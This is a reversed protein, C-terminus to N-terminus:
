GYCDDYPKRNSTRENKDVRRKRKFIQSYIYHILDIRFIGNLNIKILNKNVYMPIIQYKPKRIVMGMISSIIGVLIATKSADELGLQIKLDIKKIEIRINKLLERFEIDVKKTKKFRFYIKKFNTKIKNTKVQKIQKKFIKLKEFIIISIFVKAEPDIIKENETNVNLDKVEIEIKSTYIALLITIIIILIFLFFM